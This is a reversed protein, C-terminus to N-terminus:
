GVSEEVYCERCWRHNPYRSIAFNAETRTASRLHRLETNMVAECSGEHYSVYRLRSHERVTVLVRGEEM